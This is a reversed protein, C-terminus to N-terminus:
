RRIVPALAFNSTTFKIKSAMEKNKIKTEYTQEPQKVPEPVPEPAKEGEAGEKKEEAPKPPPTVPSAKVAIKEEETWKQVLESDDLAAVNHINNTVRM